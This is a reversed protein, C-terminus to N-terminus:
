NRLRATHLLLPPIGKTSRLRPFTWPPDTQSLVESQPLTSQEVDVIWIKLPSSFATKTLIKDRSSIICAENLYQLCHHFCLGQINKKAVEKERVAHCPMEHDAQTQLEYSLFNKLPIIINNAYVPVVTSFFVLLVLTTTLGTKFLSAM